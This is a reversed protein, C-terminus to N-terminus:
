SQGLNMSQRPGHGELVRDRLKGIASGLRHDDLVAALRRTPGLSDIQHMAEALEDTARGSGVYRADVHAGADLVERDDAVDPASPRRSSSSSGDGHVATPTALAIRAATACTSVRRSRSPTLTRIWPMPWTPAASACSRADSPAETITVSMSATRAASSASLTPPVLTAASRASSTEQSTNAGQATARTTELAVSPLSEHLIMTPAAFSM